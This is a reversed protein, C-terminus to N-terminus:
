KITDKKVVRGITMVVVSVTALTMIAFIASIAIGTEGKGTDPNFNVLPRPKEVFERKDENEGYPASYLPRDSIIYHTNTHISDEWQYTEQNWSPGNDETLIGDNNIYVFSDEHGNLMIKLNSVQGECRINVSSIMANPNKQAISRPLDDDYGYTITQGEYARGYASAANGYTINLTGSGTNEKWEVTRSEGDYLTFSLDDTSLDGEIVNEIGVLLRIANSHNFKDGASIITIGDRRFTKKARIELKDIVVNPSTPLVPLGSNKIHIAVEQHIDSITINEVM